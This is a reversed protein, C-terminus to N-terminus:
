SEKKIYKIAINHFSNAKDKANDSIECKGKQAKVLQALMWQINSLGLLIMNKFNEDEM